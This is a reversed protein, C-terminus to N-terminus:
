CVSCLLAFLFLVTREVSCSPGAATLIKPINDAPGQAHHPTSFPASWRGDHLGPRTGPGPSSYCPNAVKTRANRLVARHVALHTAHTKVFYRLGRLITQANCSTNAFSRKSAVACPRSQCPFPTGLTDIPHAIPLADRSTDGRRIRFPPLNAIAKDSTGCFRQLAPRCITAM